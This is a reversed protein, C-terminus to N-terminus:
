QFYGDVDLVLHVTGGGGVFARAALDGEGDTALGVIANNARTQGTSFNIVSTM